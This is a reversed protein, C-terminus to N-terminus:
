VNYGENAQQYGYSLFGLREMPSNPCILEWQGKRTMTMAGKSLYKPSIEMAARVYATPQQIAVRLNGAVSAAKMNSLLKDGISKESNITGNIDEVLINRGKREM